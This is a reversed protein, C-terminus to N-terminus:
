REVVFIIRRGEPTDVIEELHDPYIRCLQKYHASKPITAVVYRFKEFLTKVKKDLFGKDWNPVPPTPAVANFTYRPTTPLFSSSKNEEFGKELQSVTIGPTCICATIDTEWAPQRNVYLVLGYRGEDYPVIGHGHLIRGVWRDEATDSTLPAKAVIQMARKSLWYCAGSAWPVPGGRNVRGSYDHKQWGAPILREVNVFVDDDVKYVYEYGHDLTWQYIAKMKAPLSLYGDDVDLFVEDPLPDRPAGKGYFIKYDIKYLSPIWTKRLEDVKAQNKHCAVVAVLFKPLKLPEPATDTSGYFQSVGRKKLFVRHGLSKARGRLKSYRPDEKRANHPLVTINVGSIYAVRVGNDKLTLFWDGHEGGIKMREDWPFPRISETRAIFYNLVIDCPTVGSPLTKVPKQAIYQGPAVILTNGGKWHGEGGVDGGAVDIEPHSELASLMREIGDRAEKTSFDFDDSGMLVYPTRTAAIGHNRKAPLGSDYPLSIVNPVPINIDSDDVIVVECEPLNAKIGALCDVLYGPRLFSTILITVDSLNM